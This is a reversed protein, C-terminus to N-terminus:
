LGRSIPSSADATQTEDEDMISDQNDDIWIPLSDFISLNDEFQKMIRDYMVEGIDSGTGVM